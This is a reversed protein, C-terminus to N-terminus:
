LLRNKEDKNKIIFDIGSHTRGRIVASTIFTTIDFGSLM